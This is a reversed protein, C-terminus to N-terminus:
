LKAEGAPEGTGIVVRGPASRGYTAPDYMCEGALPPQQFDGPTVADVIYLYTYRGPSMRAFVAIVRDDRVELHTPYARDGSLSDPLEYNTSLRPSQVELGGPLLDSVVFNKVEHQLGIGLAVIYSEGQILDAPQVAHGQRDYYSRSVTVGNGTAEAAPQLPIGAAVANVYIPSSGTNTVTFRPNPGALHVRYAQTGALTKTGEPGDIQAAAGEATAGIAQLYSALAAITMAKEQTSGYRSDGNELWYTLKEALPRMAEAKEGMHTMALLQVAQNRVPSSLIGDTMVTDFPYTKAANLYAQVREMDKSAVALAAALLYRACSPLEIGEFRELMNAAEPDGGLALVYIAYARLYYGSPSADSPNDVIGRVYRQLIAYNNDDIPIKRGNRVLTLFHLGYVSGYPYSSNGGPWFSLGGEGTQMSLIRDIGNRLYVDLDKVGPAASAILEHQERLLYIPLLRSVTQEICGYPYGVLDSLANELRLLPNAGVSLSLETWDDQRFGAAEIVRSQGPDLVTLTSSTQYAAPEGVPLPQGLKLAEIMEGAGNRIGATWVAEGQGPEDGATLTFRSTAEGSPGVDLTRTATEDGALTLTGSTSLELAATGSTPTTNYITALAQAKDGPLLFRPLSTQLMWPRRVFLRASASGTATGTAAVAVLRLQGNFEPVNLTVSTAGDPGTHVEDTWLAVTQIWNQGLRGLRRGGGGEDGGPAPAEWPRVIEDYYHAYRMDPRLPRGFWDVPDPTKYRTIAHIGEDVAALTVVADIPKGASDRTAVTLTVPQDPRVEDPLGPFEVQIVRAPDSVKLNVVDSSSFPYVQRKAPDVAHIVTAEIWVNPFWEPRVTLEVSATGGRVECPVASFYGRGQVVVLGKGDFPSQLRVHAMEGIKREPEDLKVTLLKPQSARSVYPQGGYTYFTVMSFQPNGESRVTVRYRGYDDAPFMTTGTGSTLTVDRKEVQKYQDSLNAQQHTLYSRVQYQWEARELEVTATTLDAASGDPRVAAVRVGVQGPKDSRELALGLVTASPFWEAEMGPADVVRGGLEHVTGSVRVRCPQTQGKLPDAVKFLARGQADTRQEGLSTNDIRKYNNTFTFDPWQDFGDLPEYRLFAEAVRDSAAGGFLHEADLRVEFPGEGAIWRERDLSLTAKMRNPVFEEIQFPYYALANDSGPIKLTATWGGTPYVKQTTFDYGGLGWESLDITRQTMLEGNPKRIELVLPAGALAQGKRDRVIRMCSPTM